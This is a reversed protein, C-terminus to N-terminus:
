VHRDTWPPPPPHYGLMGQLDGPPHIGVHRAPKWAWVWPSAQPTQDPPTELGVGPPHIDAHVSASGGPQRSSSRATGMRSSHMRIKMAPENLTLKNM